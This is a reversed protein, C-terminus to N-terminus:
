TAQGLVRAVTQELWNGALQYRRVAAVHGRRDIIFTEPVGSTGFSRVFSGSVDRIVPYTIHEQRVFTESDSSNDLYTVGLITGNHQALVGQERELIPAEAKCPGCWSAFVNLVVVKGRLDALSQKGSSGLMPLATNAGPAAPRVGRAIQSDISTNEGQSSVGFALLALLAVALAAVIGPVLFRRM